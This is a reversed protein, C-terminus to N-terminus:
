AEAALRRLLQTLLDLSAFPKGQFHVAGLALLPQVAEDRTDTSMFVVRVAANLQRLARLMQPGDLDPLGVDLLVVGITASHHRYLTIAEAGSRALRAPLDFVQMAVALMARIGDDDEVVLVECRHRDEIRELM